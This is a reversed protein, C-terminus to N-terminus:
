AVSFAAVPFCHSMLAQLRFSRESSDASAGLLTFRRLMTVVNLLRKRLPSVLFCMVLPEVVPWSPM